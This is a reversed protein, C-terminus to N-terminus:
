KNGKTGSSSSSSYNGGFGLPNMGTLARLGANNYVAGQQVQLQKFNKIGSHQNGSVFPKAEKTLLRSNVSWHASNAGHPALPKPVTTINEDILEHTKRHKQHGRDPKLRKTEDRIYDMPNKDTLNISAAGGTNVSAIPTASGAMINEIILSKSIKFKKMVSM